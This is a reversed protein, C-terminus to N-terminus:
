LNLMLYLSNNMMDKLFSKFNKM